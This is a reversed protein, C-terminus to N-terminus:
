DRLYERYYEAAMSDNMWGNVYAIRDNIAKATRVYGSQRNFYIMDRLQELQDINLSNIDVTVNHERM